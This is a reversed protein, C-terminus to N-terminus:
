KVIIIDSGEFPIGDVEGSVTIEIEDGTELIGQVEGRNFKVMLDTNNQFGM